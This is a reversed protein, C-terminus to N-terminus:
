TPKAGYWIFPNVSTFLRTMDPLPLFKVDWADDEGGRKPPPTVPLAYYLGIDQTHDADGIDMPHLILEKAYTRQGAWIAPAAPTTEGMGPMLPKAITWDGSYKFKFKLGAGAKFGGPVYDVILGAIERPDNAALLESPDVEGPGLDVANFTIKWLTRRFKTDWNTPM